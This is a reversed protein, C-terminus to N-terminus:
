LDLKLLGPMWEVFMNFHCGQRTAGLIRVIHPHNLKAMMHIEETIAEIVNEQETKSNRCFSIQLSLHAVCKCFTKVLVLKHLRRLIVHASVSLEVKLHIQYMPIMSKM